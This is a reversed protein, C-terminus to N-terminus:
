FYLQVFLGAANFSQGAQRESRLDLRLAADRALTLRQEMVMAGPDTREGLVSGIQQAYVHIRWSRAADVVMGLRAGGGATYGHEFASHVRVAAELSAYALLGGAVSWAGGIGGEAGAALPEAGSKTFRREWGAAVRWSRPQFFDGRPLLSSVAFPILSEIRADRGEYARARLHFFEVQAGGVYGTDDDLLDHYTPRLGLEVFAARDRQGGGLAVRSTRHGEDPRPGPPVRPAQSPADIESRAVLLAHRNHYDYAAEVVAAAREAPLARLVPDAPPLAGLALDRAMRRESPRMRALREAMITSRSPRYVIKRVLGAQGTLARVSDVPLAWLPFQATLELEPRAVQLLGLLHYACNEDFFFYDFYVPLLEWAHALVRELEAANLDLEYEWLDRHELDSYERVKLYYPLMSLVGRYGGFVGKLAYAFGNTEDTDAAFSIAYALLRTREDQAAADVRLLTHGYMSGPNSVYASAFVLTLQSADIAARWERYRRCERRPLRRQDFQLEVDLWARRAAFRCQPHDDEAAPPAFFSRLTAELEARPDQKGLTANFFAPSDIQSHVGPSVLDPVYHVLKRWEAREALRLHRAREILEDAYGGALAHLPAVLLAVLLWFFGRPM